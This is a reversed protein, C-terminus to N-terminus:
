HYRRLEAAARSRLAANPHDHSTEELLPEVASGIDDRLFSALDDNYSPTSLFGRLVTKILEPDSRYTPDSRIADRFSKLGETWYFKSFYIRGAAYALGASDPSQRRARNLLDLAAERDGQAVLENARAIVNHGPDPRRAGAAPAPTIAVPPDGRTEIIALAAGGAVLIGAVIAATYRWPWRRAPAADVAPEVPDPAAPRIVVPTRTGPVPTRTVVMGLFTGVPEAGGAAAGAGPEVAQAGAPPTALRARLAGMPPTAFGARAVGTPPTAFGARPSGAAPAVQPSGAVPTPQAGRAGRAEAAPAAAGAPRPLERPRTLDGSTALNPPNAANASDAAALDASVAASAAAAAAASAIADADLEALASSPSIAAGSAVPEGRQEAARDAGSRTLFAPEASMVDGSGVEVSSPLSVAAGGSSDDSGVAALPETPSVTQARPVGSGLWAARGMAADLAEAYEQASAFRKRARKALAKVIVTELEGFDVGPLKSDLRPIPDSLHMKCVEIPDDRDSQFPKRGTLLEFLLVGCAYLDARHDIKDGRVQEPAMYAPTGVALGATLNQSTDLVRALGFDLIKVHDGLGTKQSLVLNAPKIDRHIIGHEHAHALGSLVQRVIEVARPIPQPGRSILEKLNQGSVFDMVVFPRDGHVGVDLVSACHPHELKAMAMAEIEFRKRGSLEDPLVDHLVKIAVIRGLKVREARYVVGMAGEAVPEIVRYRGDLIAGSLDGREVAALYRLHYALLPSLEAHTRMM